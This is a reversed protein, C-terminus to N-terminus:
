IAYRGSNRGRPQVVPPALDVASYPQRKFLHVRILQIGKEFDQGEVKGLTLELGFSDVIKLGGAILGHAVMRSKFGKCEVSMGNINKFFLIVGGVPCFKLDEM